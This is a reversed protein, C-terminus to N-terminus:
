GHYITSLQIANKINHYASPFLFQKQLMEASPMILCRLADLRESENQAEARFDGSDSRWSFSGSGLEELMRGIEDCTLRMLSPLSREYGCTVMEPGCLTEVFHKMDDPLYSKWHEAAQSDISKEAGKEFSSNSVPDVGPSYARFARPDLMRADYPVNLFACIQSLCDEPHRLLDEYRLLLWRGELLSSSSMEIDFAVVKRWHRLYSPIHAMQSPDIEGLRCLSAVIARPDRLLCVFKARPFARALPEVFEVTWVEKFGAKVGEGKRLRILHLIQRVWSAYDPAQLVEAASQLDACEHAIRAVVCRRMEEGGRVPIELSSERISRLAEPYGNEFYYDLLPLSECFWKASSIGSQCWVENRFSHFVPFLPDSAIALEPHADLMRVLLTSGSRAPALVFIPESDIM